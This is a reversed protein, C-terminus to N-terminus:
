RIFYKYSPHTNYDQWFFMYPHLGEANSRVDYDIEHILFTLMILVFMFNVFRKYIISTNNYVNHGEAFIWTAVIPLM